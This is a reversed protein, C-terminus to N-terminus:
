GIDIEITVATVYRPPNYSNQLNRGSEVISGLLAFPAAAFMAIMQAVRGPLGLHRMLRHPLRYRLRIGAYSAWSGAYAIRAPGCLPFARQLGEPSPDPLPDRDTNLFLATLRGGARIAPRVADFLAGFQHFDKFDGEVICHEVREPLSLPRGFLHAHWAAAAPLTAVGATKESLHRFLGLSRVVLVKAGAATARAASAYALRTSSRLWHWSRYDPASGFLLRSIRRATGDGAGAQDAAVRANLSETALVLRRVRQRYHELQNMVADASAEFEAYLGHRAPDITALARALPSGYKAEVALANDALEGFARITESLPLAGGARADLNASLAEFADRMTSGASPAAAPKAGTDVVGPVQALAANAQKHRLQHFRDYHYVWQLHGTHPIAPVHAFIDDLTRDLQAQAHETAAPLDKAHLVLRGRGVHKCYDTTFNVMGRAIQRPTPWGYRLDLRATDRSRLEMMLFDDSDGLVVHKQSPCFEAIAGYDWYSTMDSLHREPKMAVVAIPLQRGALTSEDVAWYFQDIQALSFFRQNLVKSRITFHRHRLVLEAMARHGLALEGRAGRMTLLQERVDEEVTCYSPSLILREGRKLHPLLNRYSGDALVFDANIFLFVCDTMRAGLDEMGRFLAYTLSMGYSDKSALLDDLPKLEVRCLACLAAFSPHRRVKDFFRSETVLAVEVAFDGTLAPLNGPALLAPLCLELLDDIYKEGWAVSVARLPPLRRDPASRM